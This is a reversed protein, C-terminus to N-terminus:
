PEQDDNTPLAADRASIYEVTEEIVPKPPIGTTNQQVSAAMQQVFQEADARLNAEGTTM